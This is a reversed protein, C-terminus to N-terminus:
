KTRKNVEICIKWAEVLKKLKEFTDANPNLFCIPCNCLNDFKEGFIMFSHGPEQGCGCIKGNTRFHNCQNVRAWAFIKLSEDMPYNFTEGNNETTKFCVSSKNHGFYVYLYDGPDTVIFCVNEGLHKWSSTNDMYTAFDLANRLTDGSLNIRFEDEQTIKSKQESM